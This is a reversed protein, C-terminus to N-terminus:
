VGVGAIEVLRSHLVSSHHSVGAQADYPRSRQIPFMGTMQQSTRHLHHDPFMSLFHFFNFTM